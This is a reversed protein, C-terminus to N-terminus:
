ESYLEITENGIFRAIDEPAPSWDTPKNGKEVKPAAWYIFKGDTCTTNCEFRTSGGATMSMMDATVTFTYSYQVWNTTLTAIKAVSLYNKNATESANHGSVWIGCIDRSTTDDTKAWISYTLIDGTSIVGRDKLQTRFNFGIDAWANSSKFVICGNFKDTTETVSNRENGVSTYQTNTGLLLNRGGWISYDDRINYNVNDSTAKIQSITAM